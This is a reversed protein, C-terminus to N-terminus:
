SYRFKTRRRHLAVRRQPLLDGGAEVDLWAHSSIHLGDEGRRIWRAIVRALPLVGSISLHQDDDPQM